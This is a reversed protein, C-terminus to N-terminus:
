VDNSEFDNNKHMMVVHGWDPASGGNNCICVIFPFGKDETYNCYGDTLMICVDGVLGRECLWEIPAAMDTGGRGHIKFNRWAGRRYNPEWGQFDHDWQLVGVKAKYAIAEIEGFFQSLDSESISGSTDVVVSVKAAAHRSHGPVGFNNNRRNRRSFTIRKNGVHRGLYKKLLERWTVIPKSLSKLLEMIHGPTKGQSREASQTAMDSIVQRVQDPSMDSDVWQSHDDIGQMGEGSAQMAKIKQEFRPDDKIREYYYEATENDPWEKPIWVMHQKSDPGLPLIGEKGQFYGCRPSEARGNVCMDIAFNWIIPDSQYEAGRTIHMRMLHEIEHQVCGYLEEVTRGEVFERYWRCYIQGNKATVYMTPMHTPKTTEEWNMLISMHGYWPSTSMLRCRAAMLKEEPNM